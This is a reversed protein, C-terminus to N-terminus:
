SQSVQQITSVEQGTRAWQVLRVDTSDLSSWPFALGALALTLWSSFEGLRVEFRPSKEAANRYSTYWKHCILILLLIPYQIETDPVFSPMAALLVAKFTVSLMALHRERNIRGRLLSILLQAGSNPNTPGRHDEFKVILINVVAWVMLLGLVVGAMAVGVCHERGENNDAWCCGILSNGLWFHHLSNLRACSLMRTSSSILIPLMTYVLATLTLWFSLVSMRGRRRGHVSFCVVFAIIYFGGFLSAVGIDLVVSWTVAFWGFVGQLWEGVSGLWTGTFVDSLLILLTTRTFDLVSWGVINMVEMNPSVQAHGVDSFGLSQTSLFTWLYLTSLGLLTIGLLAALVRGVGEADVCDGLQNRRMGQPCALCLPGMSNGYCLKPEYMEDSALILGGTPFLAGGTCKGDTGPCSFAGYQETGLFFGMISGEDTWFGEDVSLMGGLCTVGHAPCEFCRESVRGDSWEGNDCGVCMFSGRKFGFPDVSGDIRTGSPCPVVEIVITHQTSFFVRGLAPNAVMCSVRIGMPQTALLSEAIKAEIVLPTADNTQTLDFFSSGHLPLSDNLSEWACSTVAGFITTIENVRFNVGIGDLLNVAASFPRGAVVSRNDPDLSVSMAAPLFFHNVCVMPRAALSIVLIPAGSWAHCGYPCTPDVNLLVSVNSDLLPGLTSCSTAEILVREATVIPNGIFNTRGTVNALSTGKEGDVVFERM